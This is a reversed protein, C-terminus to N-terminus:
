YSRDSSDLSLSRVRKVRSTEPAQSAYFVASLSNIVPVRPDMEPKIEVEKFPLSLSSSGSAQLEFTSDRIAASEGGKVGLKDFSVSTPLALDEEEEDSPLPISRNRYNPSQPEEVSDQQENVIEEDQEIEVDSRGEDSQDDSMGDDDSSSSSAIALPDHIQLDRIRHDHKSSASEISWTGDGALTAKIQYSCHSEPSVKSRQGKCYL